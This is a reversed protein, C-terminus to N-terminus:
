LRNNSSNYNYDIFVFIYYFCYFDISILILCVSRFAFAALERRKFKVHMCSSAAACPFGEQGLYFCVPM